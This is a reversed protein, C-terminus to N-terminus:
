DQLLTIRDPPLTVACEDGVAFSDAQILLAELLLGKANLRLGTTAGGFEVQQVLARLTNGDGESVESSPQSKSVIVAEPRIALTCPKNMPLRILDEHNSAVTLVHEGDLTRFEATATNSSTIRMAPILNNRGLFRAVGVSAPQEYLERAAGIQLISGAKMVAIRDCLAFAEEQDHTVYVATLGLRTVL